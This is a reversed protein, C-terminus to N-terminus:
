IPLGWRPSRPLGPVRPSQDSWPPRTCMGVLEIPPCYISAMLRASFQENIAKFSISPHGPAGGSPFYCVVTWNRRHGPTKISLVQSSVFPNFPVLDIGSRSQPNNAVEKIMLAIVVSLGFLGFVLLMKGSPKPLNWRRHPEPLFTRSNEPEFWRGCEPCYCKGLGNLPYFCKCCYMPRQSSAIDM